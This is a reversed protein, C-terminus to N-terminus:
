GEKNLKILEKLIQKAVMELSFLLGLVIPFSVVALVHSIDHFM